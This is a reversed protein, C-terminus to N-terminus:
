LEGNLQRLRLYLASDYPRIALPEGGARERHTKVAHALERFRREAVTDAIRDFPRSDRSRARATDAPM